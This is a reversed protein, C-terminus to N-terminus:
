KICIVRQENSTAYQQSHANVSRQFQFISIPFKAQVKKNWKDFDHGVMDSLAEAPKYVDLEYVRKM